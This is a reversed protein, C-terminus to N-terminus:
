PVSNINSGWERGSLINNCLINNDAYTHYPSYARASIQLSGNKATQLTLGAPPTPSVITPFDNCLVNSVTIVLQLPVSSLPITSSADKFDEIQIAVGYNGLSANSSIQLACSTQYIFVYIQNSQDNTNIKM